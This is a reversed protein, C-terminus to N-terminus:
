KWYGKGPWLSFGSYVLNRILSRPPPTPAISFDIWISNGTGQQYFNVTAGCRAAEDLLKQVQGSVANARTVPENPNIDFTPIEVRLTSPMHGNKPQLTQTLAILLKKVQTDDVHNSPSVGVVEDLKPPENPKSSKPTTMRLENLATNKLQRLVKSEIQRIGERTMGMRHGVEALTVVDEVGIGFRMRLISQEKPKLSALIKHVASARELQFVIDMPDPATYEDRADSAIMSDIDLEHISLSEGVIKMYAAVKLPALEVLEAIEAVDPTRGYDTEFDRVAHEIRQLKEHIHVPVRITRGKDAVYRSVQQRIWWTAYTSFRFGRRWNFREVGKLLGINGEQLLDDLPMGSYLYKKAISNVLKLNAVIMRDRAALYERMALHLEHAQEIEAIKGLEDLELLYAGSLGLSGLAERMANNNSTIPKELKQTIAWLRDANALFDSLDDDPTIEDADAEVELGKDGKWDQDFDENQFPNSVGQQVGMDADDGRSGSSMWRLPKEKTKVLEAAQIVAEIGSISIALADLACDIANEMAKSLAVEEEATLLSGRQFDRQYHRLANNRGSELEDIFSIAEDIIQEEDLSERKDVHVLFSEHHTSYEHREDTEAGLDNIVMRLLAEADTNPAQDDNFTLDEIAQNPVSGERVARLLLFRLRERAEADDARPLPSAREPLFAEYEDWDVSLDIPAHKSIANQVETANSLVMPDGDPMALEVEAEWCSLDLMAGDEDFDIMQMATRVMVVASEITKNQDTANLDQTIDTEINESQLALGNLSDNNANVDNLDFANGTMRTQAISVCAAELLLAVELAGKTNAILLANNGKQDILLPDAGAELLLRCIQPKNRSAALMLPTQGSSDRANLEDGREIHIRVAGEVGAIVAIRFFSSLTPKLHEATDSM